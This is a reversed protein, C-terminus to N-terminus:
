ADPRKELGYVANQAARVSSYHYRRALEKWPTRRQRREDRMALAQPSPPKRQGGLRGQQTPAGTQVLRGGQRTLYYRLLTTRACGLERALAAVSPRETGDLAIVKV